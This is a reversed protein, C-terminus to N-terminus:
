LTKKDLVQGQIVEMTRVSSTHEVTRLTQMTGTIFVQRSQQLVLEFLASSREQDLEADVDDLLIVPSEETDAELLEIVSLKLALAVRM